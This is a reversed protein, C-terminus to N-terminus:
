RKEDPGSPITLGVLFLGLLAGAVTGGIAGWWRWLFWGGVTGALTLVVIAACGLLSMPKAAGAPLDAASAAPLRPASPLEVGQPARSAAVALAEWLGVEDLHGELVVTGDKALVYEWPSKQFRLEELLQDEEDYLVSFQVRAKRAEKEGNLWWDGIEREHDTSTVVHLEHLREGITAAFRAYRRMFESYPGNARYSGLACVVFLRGAGMMALSRALSAEGLAGLLPLRYDVPFREGLSSREVQPRQGTYKEITAAIRESEDNYDFAEKLLDLGQGQDGKRISEQGRVHRVIAYFNTTFYEEYDAEYEDVLALGEEHRGQEWLAAGLLVLAPTRRADGGAVKVVTKVVGGSRKKLEKAALRELRAWEGAEWLTALRDPDEPFSYSAEIAEPTPVFRAGLPLATELHLTERSAILHIRYAHTAASLSLMEADFGGAGKGDISVLLDGTRVGLSALPGASAVKAVRLCAAPDPAGDARERRQAVIGSRVFADLSLEGRRSREAAQPIRRLEDSM